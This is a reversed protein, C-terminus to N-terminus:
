RCDISSLCRAPQARNGGDPHQALNPNLLKVLLVIAQTPSSFPLAQRWSTEKDTRRIVAIGMQALLTGGLPDAVFHMEGFGAVVVSGVEDSMHFCGRCGNGIPLHCFNHVM